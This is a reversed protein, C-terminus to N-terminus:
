IIIKANKDGEAKSVSLMRRNYKLLGLVACNVMPTHSPFHNLIPSPCPEHRKGAQPQIATERSYPHFNCSPQTEHASPGAAHSSGGHARTGPSDPLLTGVDGLQVRGTRAQPINLETLQRNCNLM